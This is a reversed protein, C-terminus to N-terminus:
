PCDRSLFVALRSIMAWNPNSSVASNWAEPYDPYIRLATQLEPLAVQLEGRNMYEGGLAFHM